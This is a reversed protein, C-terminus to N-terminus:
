GQQRITHFRAACLISIEINIGHVDNEERLYGSSDQVLIVKLSKTFEAVAKNAQM